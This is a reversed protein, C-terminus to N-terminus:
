SPLQEVSVVDTLLKSRAIESQRAAHSVHAAADVVVAAENAVTSALKELMDALSTLQVVGSQASTHRFRHAAQQFQALEHGLQQADARVPIAADADVIPDAVALYRAVTLHSAAQQVPKSALRVLQQRFRHARSRKVVRETRDCATVLQDLRTSLSDLEACAQRERANMEHLALTHLLRWQNEKTEMVRLWHADGERARRAPPPVASM